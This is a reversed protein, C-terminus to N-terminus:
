IKFLNFLFSLIAFLFVLLVFVFVQRHCASHCYSALKQQDNFALLHDSRKLVQIPPWWSIGFNPFRFINGSFSLPLDSKCQLWSSLVSILVTCHEPKFRLIKFHLLTHILCCYVVDQYSQVKLQKFQKINQLSNSCEHEQESGSKSIFDLVSYLELIYM